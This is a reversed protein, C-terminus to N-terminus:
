STPSPFIPISSASSKRSRCPSRNSTAAARSSRRHRRWRNGYSRCITPQGFPRELHDLAHRRRRWRNRLDKHRRRPPYAASPTKARSFYKKATSESIIAVNAHDLREDKRFYRGGILPIQARRLLRSRHGVSCDSARGKRCRRINRVDILTAVGAKGPLATSLGAAQVGPLARVRRSAARLLRDEAHARTTRTPFASPLTLVNDVACGLDRTRLQQYSKLLLGAGLLVSPSSVEATLLAKRLPRPRPRRHPSRSSSQLSELLQGAHLGLSPILGAALGTVTSLVIVFAFAAWRRSPDRRAPSAAACRCLAPSARGLALLLRSRRGIRLPRAIRHPARPHLRWRSGGLAARIALDQQRAASRAVLLNAVNLCAILLVCIHRRAPRLAANQFGVRHITLCCHGIARHARRGGPHRPHATARHRAPQATTAALHWPRPTRRGPIRSRQIGGDPRIPAEHTAPTWVATYQASMPERPSPHPCLASSPTPSPTSISREQRSAAPRRHFPAELLMYAPPGHGPLRATTPPLFNRGLAPRVGLVRFFNWSFWAADVTEPLQGGEASVNYDQWPSVLAMQAKGEAAHQWERFSGAAVPLFPGFEQARTANMSRTSRTRTRSHCAPQAARQPGRHLACGNGGIGLAM